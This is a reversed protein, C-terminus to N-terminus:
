FNKFNQVFCKSRVAERKWLSAIVESMRQSANRALQHTKETLWLIGVGM